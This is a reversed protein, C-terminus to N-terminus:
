INRRGTIEAKRITIDMGTASPVSRRKIRKLAQKHDTRMRIFDRVAEDEEDPVYVAKYQNNKLSEAIAIADRKDTKVKRRRNVETGLITSPAM